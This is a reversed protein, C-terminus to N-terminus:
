TSLILDYQISTPEWGIRAIDKHFPSVQSCLQVPLIQVNFHHQWLGLFQWFTPSLGTVSEKRAGESPVSGALVNIEGKEGRSSHTLCCMKILGDVSVKNCCGWCFKYLIRNKLINSSKTQYYETSLNQM